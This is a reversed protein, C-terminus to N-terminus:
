RQKVKLLVSQTAILNATIINCNQGHRHRGTDADIDAQRDREKKREEM